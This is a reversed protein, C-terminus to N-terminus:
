GMGGIATEMNVIPLLIAVLVFGVVLALLVIFVAPVVTMVRQIAAATEREYAEATQLLMEDLRGTREGMAIVQILLPPFQGTQRLPEAISRGQTIGAAVTDIQRALAENGLTDRLVRLSELIGIGSKSLTGLTRAFRAVAVRRLATGVVPIRLLFRDFAFRGSPRSVWWRFAAGGGAIALLVAWWYGVLFHSLAMVVRTPAPLTGITESVTSLIRPLIVTMVLVVSVAALSLVFLPYTAASRIRERVDLDKEAFESLYGMVQDLMGATEGVRVMSGELHSFDRAHAEMSGSLSQGGQVDAALDAALDRMAPTDAQAEVVRLASLLPLGAKLATALQRLMAAKARLTIRRRPWALRLGSPAEKDAAERLDVVYIARGSLAAIAGQRTDAAVTGNVESGVADLANYRYHPM